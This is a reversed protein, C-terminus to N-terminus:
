KVVGAINPHDNWSYTMTVNGSKSGVLSNGDSSFTVDGSDITFTANVDFGNGSNDDFVLKKSNIYKKDSDTKLGIYKIAPTSRARSLLGNFTVEYEKGNEFVADKVM